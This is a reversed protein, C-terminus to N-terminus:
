RSAAPAWTVHMEGRMAKIVGALTAFIALLIEIAAMFARHQAHMGALVVLLMAGSTALLAIPSILFLLASAAVAGTILSIGGFWRTVKRSVYKFRDLPQMRRLQPRLYLHTHYARSGIRVKRRIEDKRGSVLREYAIVDHAKILRKGAFIAAMSVTLDDLVTDPFQPYLERRLSFISGDAGIVNGTMSELGKLHEELRWYLSGVQATPSSDDKLYHLSGLVGGVNSDAFYRGLNRLSDDRLIVNADTFVLIDGRARQALIKMGHAKGSRGKGRVVSLLDPHENLLEFTGDNSGDDFALIEVDCCEKLQALNAIKAGLHSQENYACFLLSFSTKHNWDTQIPVRPLLRLAAGYLLYPYIFALISITLILSLAIIM